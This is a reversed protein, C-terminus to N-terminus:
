PHASASLKDLALSALGSTAIFVAMATLEKRTKPATAADAVKQAAKRTYHSGIFGIDKALEWLEARAKRAAMERQEKESMGVGSVEEGRAEASASSEPVSVALASAPAAVAASTAVLAATAAGADASATDTGSLLALASARPSSTLPTPMLSFSCRSIAARLARASSHSSALSMPNM